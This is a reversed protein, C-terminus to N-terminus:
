LSYLYRIMIFILIVQIISNSKKRAMNTRRRREAIYLGTMACLLVIVCVVALTCLVQKMSYIRGCKILKEDDKPDIIVQCVGNEGALSKKLANANADSGNPSNCVRSMEKEGRTDNLEAKTTEQVFNAMVAM